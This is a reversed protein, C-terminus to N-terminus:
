GMKITVSPKSATTTVCEALKVALAPSAKLLAEYAKKDFAYSSPVLKVPLRGEPIDTMARIADVDAKYNIGQKVTVKLGEGADVTRSGSVGEIKVLDAIALEAKIRIEKAKGEAKKADFLLCALGTLPNPEEGEAVPDPSSACSAEPADNQQASAAPTPDSPQVGLQEATPKDFDIDLERGATIPEAELQAVPEPPADESKVVDVREDPLTGMEKTLTIGAEGAMDESPIPQRPPTQEGYDTYENM